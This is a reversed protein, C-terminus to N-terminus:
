MYLYEVKPLSSLSSTTSGMRITPFFGDSPMKMSKKSVIRRNISFYIQVMPLNAHSFNDPYIIGCEIVDGTRLKQLGFDVKGEVVLQGKDHYSISGAPYGPLECTFHDSRQVGIMIYENKDNDAKSLIQFKFSSNDADLSHSLQAFGWTYSKAVLEVINPEDPSIKMNHGTRWVCKPPLNSTNILKVLGQRQTITVDTLRTIEDQQRDILQKSDQQERRLFELTKKMEELQGSFRKELHTFCNALYERRTMSMNCGKDCVVIANPQYICNDTHSQLREIPM